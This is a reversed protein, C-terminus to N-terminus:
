YIYAIDKHYISKYRDAVGQGDPLRKWETLQWMGAFRGNDEVKDCSTVGFLLATAILISAFFTKM